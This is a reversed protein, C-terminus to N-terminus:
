YREFKSSSIKREGRGRKKKNNKAKQRSKQRRQSMRDWSYLSTLLTPVQWSWLLAPARPCGSLDDWKAVPTVAADGVLHHTTQKSLLVSPFTFDM